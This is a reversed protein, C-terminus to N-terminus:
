SKQPNSLVCSQSIWFEAKAGVDGREM